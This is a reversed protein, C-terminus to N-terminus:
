HGTDKIIKKFENYTQTLEEFLHSNKILKENAEYEKIYIEEPATYKLIQDLLINEKYKEDKDPYNKKFFSIGKEYEETLTYLWAIAMVNVGYKERKDYEYSTSYGKNPKNRTCTEILMHLAEDAVKHKYLLACINAVIEISLTNADLPQNFISACLQITEDKKNNILLCDVIECALSVQSEKISGFPNDSSFIYYHSAKSFLDYLEKLLKSATFGEETKPDFLRLEKIFRMAKFRWKSRESKSIIRNPAIYLDNNACKIFYNIESELNTIDVKEIKSKKKTSDNPNLILLDIDEKKSKPLAKYIEVLVKDTTKKDYNSIINRLEAVKMNQEQKINITRIM